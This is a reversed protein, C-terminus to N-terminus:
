DNNFWYLLCYSFCSRIFANYYMIRINSPFYFLVKKFIGIQQSCMKTIHIVHFHWSLEDDILIGLYMDYKPNSLKYNNISIVINSNFLLYNSKNPNVVIRYSKCWILYQIFFDNVITQLKNDDNAHFIIATDYAYLYIEVNRSCLQFVDNVFLIFLLPRLVSGQPIGASVLKNFSYHNNVKTKQKCDSLYSKILSLALGRVGYHNLQTLLLKHNIFDFAKKLDLM